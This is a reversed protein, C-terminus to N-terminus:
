YSCFCIIGDICLTTGVQFLIEGILHGKRVLDNESRLVCVCSRRGDKRKPMSLDQVLNQVMVERDLLNPYCHIFLMPLISPPYSIPPFSLLPRQRTTTTTKSTCILSPNTNLVVSENEEGLLESYRFLNFFDRCERTMDGGSCTRLVDQVMQDMEVSIHKM